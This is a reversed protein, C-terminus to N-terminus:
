EILAKWCVALTCLFFVTSFLHNLAHAKLGLHWEVGACIATLCLALGLVVYAASLGVFLLSAVGALAALTSANVLTDLLLSPTFNEGVVDADEAEDFPKLRLAGRLSWNM